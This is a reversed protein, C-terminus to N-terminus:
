PTYSWRYWDSQLSWERSTLASVQFPKPLQNGDLLLRVAAEYRVGPVLQDRRAVLRGNVRSLFRQVEELTNFTQRLLGSSVKYNRTLADWTVRYTTASSITKEDLWYWRPRVLEFELVFYLPLGKELAEELTANITLDFEATLAYGEEDARLEASRLLITDAAANLAVGLALLCVALAALVHRRRVGVTGRRPAFRRDVAPATLPAPFM